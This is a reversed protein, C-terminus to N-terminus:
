EDSSHTTGNAPVFPWSEIMGRDPAPRETVAHRRQDAARSDRGRCPQDSRLRSSVTRTGRRLQEYVVPSTLFQEDIHLLVLDSEGSYFREIM